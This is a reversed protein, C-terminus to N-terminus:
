LEDEYKTEFKVIKDAIDSLVNPAYIIPDDSQHIVEGAYCNYERFYQMVREFVADRVEPSDEYTVTHDSFKITKTM